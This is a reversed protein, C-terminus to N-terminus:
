EAEEVCEKRESIPEISGCTEENYYFFLVVSQNKDHMIPM